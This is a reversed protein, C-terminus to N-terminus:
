QTMIREFQEFTVVDGGVNAAMMIKNFDQEFIKDGISSLVAQLTSKQVFTQNPGGAVMDWMSKIDEASCHDALDYNRLIFDVDAVTYVDKGMTQILETLQGETPNQGLARLVTGLMGASIADDGYDKDYIQFAEIYDEPFEGDASAAPLTPAGHTHQTAPAEPVEAVRQQQQQQQQHHHHHQQQEHRPQYREEDSEYANFGTSDGENYENMGAGPPPAGYIGSNGMGAGPPPGAYTNSGFGAGPPAGYDVNHGDNYDPDPFDMKKRALFCTCYNPRPFFKFFVSSLSFISCLRSSVREKEAGVPAM